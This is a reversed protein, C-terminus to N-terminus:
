NFFYIYQVSWFNACPFVFQPIGQKRDHLLSALLIKQSKEIALFWMRTRSVIYLARLVWNELNLVDSIFTSSVRKSWKRFHHRNQRSNMGVPGSRELGAQLSSLHILIWNSPRTFPLTVSECLDLGASLSGSLWRM